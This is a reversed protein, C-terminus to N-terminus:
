WKRPATSYIWGLHTDTIGRLSIAWLWLCVLALDFPSWSTSCGFVVTIQFGPFSCRPSFLFIIQWGGGVSALRPCIFDSNVEWASCEVTRSGDVRLAFAAGPFITFNNRLWSHGIVRKKKPLEKDTWNEIEEPQGQVEYLRRGFSPLSKRQGWPTMPANSSFIIGNSSNKKKKQHHRKKKQKTKKKKNQVQLM